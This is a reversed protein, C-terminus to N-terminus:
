ERGSKPLLVSNLINECKKMVSDMIVRDSEAPTIIPESFYLTIRAFPYPVFFKDWSKLFRYGKYEARCLCLPVSSRAGILLAGIKMTHRPGRPGDPTLLIYSHPAKQCLELLAEKGGQSSSGRVVHYKWDNLLTALLNGDKSQSTLGVAGIHAFYKWVALMEDHWFTIVAPKTPKAGRVKYRWTTALIRFCLSAFREKM